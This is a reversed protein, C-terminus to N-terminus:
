YSTYSCFQPSTQFHPNCEAKFQESIVHAAYQLNGLSIHEDRYALSTTNDNFSAVFGKSVFARGEVQLATGQVVSPLDNLKVPEVKCPIRTLKNLKCFPKSRSPWM